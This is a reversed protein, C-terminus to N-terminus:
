RGYRNNYREMTATVNREFEIDRLLPYFLMYSVVVGVIIGLLQYM